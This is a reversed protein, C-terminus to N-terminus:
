RDNRDRGCGGNGRGGDRDPQPIAGEAAPPASAAPATSSKQAFMNGASAFLGAMGLRSLFTRRTSKGFGSHSEEPKEDSERHASM